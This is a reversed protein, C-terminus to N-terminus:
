ESEKLYSVDMLKEVATAKDFVKPATPSQQVFGYDMSKM